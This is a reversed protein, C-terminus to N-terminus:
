ESVTPFKQLMRTPCLKTYRHSALLQKLSMIYLYWLYFVDRQLM